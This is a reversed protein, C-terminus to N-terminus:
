VPGDLRYHRQGLRSAPEVRGLRIGGCTCTLVIMSEIFTNSVLYHVTIVLFFVGPHALSSEAVSQNPPVSEVQAPDEAPSEIPLTVEKPAGPAAFDVELM